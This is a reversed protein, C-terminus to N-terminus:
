RRGGTQPLGKGETVFKFLSEKIFHDWGQKCNDYCEIGPTLGIHTMDIKIANNEKSIEFAITTGSWETKNNLWPLWCDQVHWAYKGGVIAETIKFVVFTDGFHVTFVDALKKASGEFDSAWWENVRSIKEYADEANIHSVISAHYNQQQSLTTTKM